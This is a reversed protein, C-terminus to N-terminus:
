PHVGMCEVVHDCWGRQKSGMVTTEQSYLVRCKTTSQARPYLEPNDGYVSRYLAIEAARDRINRPFDRLAKAPVRVVARQVTFPPQSKAEVICLGGFDKGWIHRGLTVQGAFQLSMAYATRSAGTPYAGTKYDIVWVKRDQMSRMALVVDLRATFAVEPDMFGPPLANAIGGWEPGYTMRYEHEVSVIEVQEAGYKAEYSLVMAEGREVVDPPAHNAGLVAHLADLPQAVARGARLMYHSAMAAHFATGLVRPDAGTAMSPYGLRRDRESYAWERHCGGWPGYYSSGTSSRGTDLPIGPLEVEAAPVGPARTGAPLTVIQTQWPQPGNAPPAPAAVVIRTGGGPGQAPEAPPADGRAAQLWGM